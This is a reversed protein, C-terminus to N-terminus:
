DRTLADLVRPIHRSENHCILGLLPGFLPGPRTIRQSTLAVARDRATVLPPRATSPQAALQEAFDWAADRAAEISYSVVAEDLGLALRDLLGLLPSVQAIEDQVRNILGALIDNLRDFDRHLTPTLGDPALDVVSQGLDFSIHANMGLLLHQVLRLRPNHAAEFAVGWAACTPLGHRYRDMARLYRNAFLVDLELLRANDEFFGAECKVKVDLTTRRYLAAFFGHRTGERRSQEIIEDLAAIVDDITTAYM